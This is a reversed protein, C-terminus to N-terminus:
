RSFFLSVIGYVCCSACSCRYIFLCATCQLIDQNGSFRNRRCYFVLSRCSCFYEHQCPNRDPNVKDDPVYKQVARSSLTWGYALGVLVYSVVLQGGWHLVEGGVDLLVYGIGNAARWSVVLLANTPLVVHECFDRSALCRKYLM